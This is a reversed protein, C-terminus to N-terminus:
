SVLRKPSVKLQCSNKKAPTTLKRWVNLEMHVVTLQKSGKPLSVSMTFVYNSSPVHVYCSLYKKINFNNLDTMLFECSVCRFYTGKNFDHM